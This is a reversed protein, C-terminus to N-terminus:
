VNGGFEIATLRDDILKVGSSTNLFESPAMNDLLPNKSSLWQEFDKVSSFVDTGHKYLSLILIIHEKLNGKLVLDKKNKYNRLTRTTINLWKSLLADGLGILRDLIAIFEKDLQSHTTYLYVNSVDSVIPLDNIINEQKNSLGYTIMEEM